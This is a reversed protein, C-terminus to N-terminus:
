KGQEALLARLEGLLYKIIRVKEAGQNANKEKQADKIRSDRVHINLDKGESTVEGTHEKACKAENTALFAPQLLTPSPHAQSDLQSHLLNM